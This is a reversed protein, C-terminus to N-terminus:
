KRGSRKKERIKEKDMKKQEARESELTSFVKNMSNAYSRDKEQQEKQKVASLFRTDKRLERIAGKREQKYQYRLKSAAAREHDPDNKRMYSSSTSEFKPIYTAIPIPKHAQLALPRRSQRAFKLLRSLMDQANMLKTKLSESAWEHDLVDLVAGAPQFLEIFGDLSKYMDAFRGLLDLSTALLDVKDQEVNTTEDTLINVLNPLGPILTKATKKGLRLPRCIASNLDPCPFAGPLSKADKYRHPALLLIANLLFTVVEPVLRKSYVRSIRLSRIRGLGLYSGMLLRTPSIVPHNMDSTPWIHSITWLLALESTGPWTKAISSTAGKLLGRMLNKQMLKLKSIFHGASEVPYSSTLAHLHPIFSPLLGIMPSPPSTIHLIYDILVGTLAQLKFKNDQGLSPHYLARIRQVVTPVDEDDIDEVITLFEDHSEPCPFTFPLEKGIAKGKTKLHKTKSVRSGASEDDSDTSGDEGDSSDDDDDEEPMEEDAESGSETEGSSEAAEDEKLGTGLEDLRVDDDGLFDDELDDAGTNRIAKKKSTRKEDDSSEDDEGMMRRQRKREASELSEKTELALEEETKTRDKPRARKDLALERVHQDYDQDEHKNQNALKTSVGDADTGAFLLGRIDDLEQDLQHRTDADEQKQSQREYKHQKSKAIVEAMVEAKSKKRPPQGEEDEEEDDDDFGGFHVNKVTQRDIKGDSEDADDDADLGLGADDFDDLRSLSQGYHTLDDEDELNFVAGKSTRQREKTFRELMREEPNMSPDNEGFRRDIVAEQEIGAQKSEQPRGTVGKLKRGGVDHKLKTVKVDFPNLKQQIEQLKKAKKDNDTERSSAHKRKKGLPPQRNLGAQSLASQLQSLQSGKAM